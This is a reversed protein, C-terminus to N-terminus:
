LGNKHKDITVCEDLGDFTTDIFTYNAMKGTDIPQYDPYQRRAFRLEFALRIDNGGEEDEQQKAERASITSVRSVYGILESSDHWTPKVQVM